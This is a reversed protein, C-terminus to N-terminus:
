AAIRIVKDMVPMLREEHTVVIIQMGSRTTYERIRELLKIVHEINNDDLYVTPEDLVLLGLSSAFLDNVAFRFCISLVTKEGGSLRGAPQVKDPFTCVFGLDNDIDATFPAEFIELFRGLNVCLKRMFSKSISAPMNDKHLLTRADELLSRWRRLKEGKAEEEELRKLEAQAQEYREKAMEYPVATESLARRAQNDADLFHSAQKFAEESPMGASQKRLEALKRQFTEVERVALAHQETRQRLEAEAAALGTLAQTYADLAANAEEVAQRDVRYKMYSRLEAIEKGLRATRDALRACELKWTSETDRLEELSQFLNAVSKEFDSLASRDRTVSMLKEDIIIIANEIVSGCTSCKGTNQVGAIFREDNEIKARLDAASKQNAEIADELLKRDGQPKVLAKYEEGAQVIEECVKAHRAQKEQIVSMKSLFERYHKEKAAREESGQRRQEVEQGARQIQAALGDRNAYARQLAEDIAKLEGVSERAFNYAEVIRKLDAVQAEPLIGEQAKEFAEKTQQVQANLGDISETLTEIRAKNSVIEVTDLERKLMERIREAGATGFLKQLEKKRESARDFLIRRMDDQHIFVYSHLINFDVGLLGRVRENVETHKAVKDDKGPGFRLNSSAKTISRKVSCPRGNSRFPVETHGATAGARLNAAKPGENSSEGTLGFRMADVLNSKGIGNPGVIGIVNADGFSERFLKYQCWNEVSIGDLRFM